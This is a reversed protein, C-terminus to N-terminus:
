LVSELKQRIVSTRPKLNSTTWHRYSSAIALESGNLKLDLEDKTVDDDKKDINKLTLAKIKSTAEKGPKTKSIEILSSIVARLESDAKDEPKARDESFGKKFTDWDVKIKIEQGLDKKAWAEINAIKKDQQEIRVKDKLTHDGAFTSVIGLAITLISAKM